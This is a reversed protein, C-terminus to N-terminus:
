QYPPQLWGIPLHVLVLPFVPSSRLWRSCCNRRYLHRAFTWCGNLHIHYANQLTIKVCKDLESDYLLIKQQRQIACSVCFIWYQCEFAPMTKIISHCIRSIILWHLYKQGLFTKFIYGNSQSGSCRYCCCCCCCLLVLMWSSILMWKTITASLINLSFFITERCCNVFFYIYWGYM